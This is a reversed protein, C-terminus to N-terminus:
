QSQYQNPPPYPSQQQETIAVSRELRFTLYTGQPLYIEKNGTFADGATGAGAGALGGILAGKGGGALGGIVAGLGAGGGAFLGTRMGKGKEVREVSTTSVPYIGWRSQVGDLRVELVAAGAFRGLPKAAIVTGQARAGQPIIVQGNVVVNDVITAPFTEGPESIKSGLDQDLSVRLRTGAPLDAMRPPPPAQQQYQGSQQPYPGSQQPYPGSPPGSPGGQEPYASPNAGNGGPVPSAPGNPAAAAGPPAGNGPQSSSKCGALLLTSFLTLSAFASAAPFLLSRRPNMLDVGSSFTEGM